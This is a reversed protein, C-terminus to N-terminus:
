PDVTPGMVFTRNMTLKRVPAARAADTEVDLGPVCSAAAGIVPISQASLRGPDSPKGASAAIRRSNSASAPRM